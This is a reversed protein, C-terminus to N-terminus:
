RLGFRKLLDVGLAQWDEQSRAQLKVAAEEFRRMEAAQMKLAAMRELSRQAELVKHRASKRAAALEPSELLDRSQDSLEAIAASASHTLLEPMWQRLVEGVRAPQDQGVAGLLQGVRETTQRWAKAAPSAGLAEIRDALATAGAARLQSVLAVMNESSMPQIMKTEGEAM